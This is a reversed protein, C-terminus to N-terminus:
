LLQKLTLEVNQFDFHKIRFGGDYDAAFHFYINGYKYTGPLSPDLGDENGSNSQKRASKSHYEDIIKKGYSHALEQFSGIIECMKVDKELAVENTQAPKGLLVQYNDNWPADPSLNTNSSFVDNQTQKRRADETRKHNLCRGLM